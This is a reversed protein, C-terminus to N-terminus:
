EPPPVQFALVQDIGGVITGVEVAAVENTGVFTVYATPLPDTALPCAITSSPFPAGCTAGILGVTVSEVPYGLGAVAKLIADKSAPTCYIPPCDFTVSASPSPSPGSTPPPAPTACGVVLVGLLAALSKM